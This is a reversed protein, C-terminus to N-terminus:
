KVRGKKQVRLDVSDESSTSADDPFDDDFTTATVMLEESNEIGESTDGAPLDRTGRYRNTTGHTESANMEEDEKRSLLAKMKSKKPPLPRKRPPTTTPPPSNEIMAEHQNAVSDKEEVSTNPEHEDKGVVKHELDSVRLVEQIWQLM